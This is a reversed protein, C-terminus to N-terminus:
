TETEEKVLRPSLSVMGTRCPRRRPFGPEILTNCDSRHVGRIKLYVHGAGAAPRGHDQIFCFANDLATEAFGPMDKMGM